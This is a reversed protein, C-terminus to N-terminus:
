AAMRHEVTATMGHHSISALVDTPYWEVVQYPRCISQHRTTTPSYKESNGYWQETTYDYVYMPFHSGYSYVTYTNAALNHTGYITGTSTKFEEKRLVYERAEENSTKM